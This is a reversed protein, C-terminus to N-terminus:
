ATKSDFVEALKRAIQSAKFPKEIFGALGESLIESTEREDAYGTVIVVPIEPWSERIKKFTQWGSLGPMVMDLLIVDIDVEGEALLGLAEMGNLAQVTRYGLQKLISSLVSQIIEEDDVIM